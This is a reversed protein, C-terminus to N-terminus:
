GHWACTRNRHRAPCNRCDPHCSHWAPGIDLVRSSPMIEMGRIREWSAKWNDKKAMRDFKKCRDPDSWRDICTVFDEKRIKKPGPNKWAENWDIESIDM